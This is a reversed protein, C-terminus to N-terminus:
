KIILSKGTMEKPIPLQMLDLITPAIDGLKGNALNKINKNCLIFPVVSTTHAKNPTGDPEKMIECNGHDATIILTYDDMKTEQRIRGLCLDVAELGEIAKEYNGTHGLADGNPYNVVILNYKDNNISEIVTNTIDSSRMDPKEDYTFVNDKDYIVRDEGDYVKDTCGSFYFTVHGRKEAESIRIQKYGLKSIYEGLSNIINEPKFIIHVNREYDLSEYETMTYISLHDLYNPRSFEKFNPDTLSRLFQIM